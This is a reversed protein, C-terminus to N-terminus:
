GARGAGSDDSSGIEESSSTRMRLRKGWGSPVKMRLTWKRASAPKVIRKPGDPAPFVVSSSQMAPSVRGIFAADGDAAFIKVVRLLLQVDGGPFPADSVHMLIQREERVESGFLVYSVPEAREAGGLPLRAAAFHQRREADSMQAVPPGRLDGSALTLADGERTGQYGFRAGQQEIFRQSREVTWGLRVQNVIQPLHFWCWRM